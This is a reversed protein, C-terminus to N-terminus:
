RAGPMQLLSVADGESIDILVAVLVEEDVEATGEDVVGEEVREEAVGSVSVVPQGYPRLTDDRIAKRDTSADADADLLFAALPDTSGDRRDPMRIIAPRNLPLRRFVGVQSPSRGVESLSRSVSKLM